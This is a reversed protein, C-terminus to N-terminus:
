SYRDGGVAEIPQLEIVRQLGPDLAHQRPLFVEVLDVHKRHGVAIRARIERQGHVRHQAHQAPARIPMGALRQRADGIRRQVARAAVGAGNERM